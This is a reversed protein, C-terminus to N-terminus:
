FQAYFQHTYIPLSGILHDLVSKNHLAGRGSPLSRRAVRAPLATAMRWRACRAAWRSPGGVELLTHGEGLAGLRQSLRQPSVNRPVGQDQLDDM